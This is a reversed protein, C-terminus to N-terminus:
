HVEDMSSVEVVADSARRFPSSSRIPAQSTTVSFNTSARSLKAAAYVSLRQNQPYVFPVNLSDPLVKQEHM